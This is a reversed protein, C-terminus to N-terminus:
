RFIPAALIGYFGSNDVECFAQIEIRSSNHSVMAAGEQLARSGAKHPLPLFTHPKMMKLSKMIADVISAAVVVVVAATLSYKDVSVSLSLFSKEEM